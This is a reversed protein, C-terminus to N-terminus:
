CYKGWKKKTDSFIGRWFYNLHLDLQYTWIRRDAVTNWLTRETPGHYWLIYESYFRIQRFSFDGLGQCWKTVCLLSLGLWRVRDSITCLNDALPLCTPVKILICDWGNYSATTKRIPMILGFLRVTKLITIIFITPSPLFPPPAPIPATALLVGDAYFCKVNPIMWQRRPPQRTTSSVM